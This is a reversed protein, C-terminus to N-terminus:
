VVLGLDIAFLKDNRDLPIIKNDFLKGLVKIKDNVPTVIFKHTTELYLNNDEKYVVVNLKRESNVDVNKMNPPERQENNVVANKNNKKNCSTVQKSRNKNSRPQHITLRNTTVVHTM